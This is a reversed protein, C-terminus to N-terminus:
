KSVSDLQGEIIYNQLLIYLVIVPCLAVACMACALPVNQVAGAVAYFSKRVVQIVTAKSTDTLLYTPMAYNNWTGVAIMILRTVTVPKLQPLIIRFFTQLVGAGDIAAADDLDKPISIIFSTYFFMTGSMGVAATQLSLAWIKNIMHFRVMLSYTGVLLSLSPIMMICINLTRLAASMKGGSRALGYAALGGFVVELLCVEIVYVASNKFGKWLDKNTFAQVYNDITWREPLYLRPTLDTMYRFSQNLMVYIPLLYLLVLLIAIIYVGIGVRKNPAHYQKMRVKGSPTAHNSM